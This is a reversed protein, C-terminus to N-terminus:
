AIDMDETEIAVDRLKSSFRKFETDNSSQALNHIDLILEQVREGEQIIHERISTRALKLVEEEGIIEQSFEKNDIYEIKIYKDLIREISSPGKTCALELIELFEEKYQIFNFINKEYTELLLQISGYNEVNCRTYKLFDSTDIEWKKNNARQVLEFMIIQATYRDAKILDKIHERIEEYKIPIYQNLIPSIDCYKKSYEVAIDIYSKGHLECIKYLNEYTIISEMKNLEKKDTDDKNYVLEYKLAQDVINEVNAVRYGKMILKIQAEILRKVQQEVYEKNM